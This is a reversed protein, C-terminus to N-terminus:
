LMVMCRATPWARPHTPSMLTYGTAVINPGRAISLYVMSINLPGVNTLFVSRACDYGPLCVWLDLIHGGYEVRELYIELNQGELHLDSCFNLNRLCALSKWDTMMQCQLDLAGWLPGQCSLGQTTKQKTYHMRRM